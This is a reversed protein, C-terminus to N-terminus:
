GEREEEGQMTTETAMVLEVAERTVERIDIQMAEPLKWRSSLYQPDQTPSEPNHESETHM